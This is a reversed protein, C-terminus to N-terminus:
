INTHKMGKSPCKKGTLLFVDSQYKGATLDLYAVLSMGFLLKLLALGEGQPNVSFETFCRFDAGKHRLGCHLRKSELRRFAPFDIAV